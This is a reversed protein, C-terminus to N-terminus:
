ASSRASWRSRRPRGSAGCAPRSTGRRPSALLRIWVSVNNSLIGVKLGGPGGVGGVTSTVAQADGGAPKLGNDSDAPSGPVNESPRLLDPIASLPSLIDEFSIDGIISFDVGWANDEDLSTQLITAELLLQQPATDLDSLLVAIADLNEVYDNVVLKAAFAYSEGGADGM